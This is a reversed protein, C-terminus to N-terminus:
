TLRWGSKCDMDVTKDGMCSSKACNKSCSQSVTIKNWIEEAYIMVSSGLQCDQEESTCRLM